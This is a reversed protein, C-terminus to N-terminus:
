QRSRLAESKAAKELAAGGLKGGEGACRRRWRLAEESKAAKKLAADGLERRSRLAESNASAKELATEGNVDRASADL